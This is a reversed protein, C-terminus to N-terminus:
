AGVLIEYLDEADIEANAGPSLAFKEDLTNLLYNLLQDEHIEGDVQNTNSVEETLL